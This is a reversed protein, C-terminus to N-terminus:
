MMPKAICTYLLLASAAVVVGLMAASLAYMALNHTCCSATRCESRLAVIGNDAAVRCNVVGCCDQLISYDAVAIHTVFPPLDNRAALTCM